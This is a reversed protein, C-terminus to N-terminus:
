LWFRKFHNSCRIVWCDEPWYWVNYDTRALEFWSFTLVTLLLIWFCSRFQIHFLFLHFISVKILSTCVIAGANVMPNHPKDTSFCIFNLVFASVTEQKYFFATMSFSITIIRVKRMWSSSTSAYAAPSKGLSDTCMNLATTMCPLLTSSRSWARSCAFHCKLTAWQTDTCFLLCLDSHDM